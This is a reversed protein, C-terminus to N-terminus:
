LFPLHVSRADTIHNAHDPVRLPALSLAALLQRSIALHTIQYPLHPYAQGIVEAISADYKNWVRILTPDRSTM